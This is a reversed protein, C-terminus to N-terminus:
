EGKLMGAPQINQLRLLPALAGLLALACSAPLVIGFVALHPWIVAHFSIKGILAALGCGIVFGALGGLIGLFGTECGFLLNLTRQSSGLAKMVAFDKRREFISSTLTALICLAVTVAILLMTALMLSRTRGIVRAEADVVQRIPSVQASPFAQSLSLIAQQIQRSTGALSIELVQPAGGIWGRYDEARIYIRDDESGGTQLIGGVRLDLTKGQFVLKLPDGSSLGLTRAARQGALAERPQDPWRSVQWWSNLRRQQELDTGVVVIPAGDGTQAVAYNSAVVLGNGDLAHIATEVSLSSATDQSPTDAPGGSTAPSAVLSTVLINAGFARFERNLKAELDLYLSLLTTAVAACVTLAVIATGTHWRRLRLSRFLMHLLMARHKM